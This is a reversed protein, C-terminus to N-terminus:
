YEVPDLQQAGHGSADYPLKNKKMKKTEWVRVTADM